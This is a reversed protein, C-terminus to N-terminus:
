DTAHRLGNIFIDFNVNEARNVLDLSSYDADVFLIKMLQVFSVSCLSQEFRYGSLKM